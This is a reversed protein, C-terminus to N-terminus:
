TRHISSALGVLFDSSTFHKVFVPIVTTPDMFAVGFMFITGQIVGVVYNYRGDGKQPLM